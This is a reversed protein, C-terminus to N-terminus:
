VKKLDSKKRPWVFGKPHIQKGDINLEPELLKILVYKDPKKEQPMFNTSPFDEETIPSKVVIAEVWDQAGQGLAVTTRYKVKDGKSFEAKALVRDLLRNALIKEVAPYKRM